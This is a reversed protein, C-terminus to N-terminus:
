TKLVLAVPVENIGRDFVRLWEMWSGICHILRIGQMMIISTDHQYKMDASRFRFRCLGLPIWRSSFQYRTGSVKPRYWKRTDSVKAYGVHRTLTLLVHPWSCAGQFNLLLRRCISVAKTVSVNRMGGSRVYDVSCGIKMMHTNATQSYQGRM